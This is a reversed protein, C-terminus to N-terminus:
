RRDAQGQDGGAAHGSMLSDDASEVGPVNPDVLGEEHVAHGLGGDALGEVGVDVEVVLLDM